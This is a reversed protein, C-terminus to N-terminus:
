SHMSTNKSRVFELISKSEYFMGADALDQAYELYPAYFNPNLKLVMEYDKRSLDLRDIAEYAEARLIFVSTDLNIHRKMDIYVTYEEIAEAYSGIWMYSRGLEYHAEPNELRRLFELFQQISEKYLQQSQYVKGLCFYAHPPHIKKSLSKFLYEESKSYNELLRYAEGLLYYVDSHSIGKSVLAELLEIAKLNNSKSM